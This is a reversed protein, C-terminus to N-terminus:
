EERHAIKLVARLGAPGSDLLKQLVELHAQGESSQYAHILAVIEAPTDPYIGWHFKGLLERSRRVVEPDDSKSAKELASEAAAGAEWLNKSAKERVSFSNDGLQEIWQAIQKPTPKSAPAAAQVVLTASLFLTVAFLSRPICSLVAAEKAPLLCRSDWGRFKALIDCKCDYRNAALGSLRFGPNRM